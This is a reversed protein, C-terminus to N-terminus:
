FLSQSKQSTTISMLKGYIASFWRNFYPNHSEKLREYYEKHDIASFWRNFYPNHSPPPQQQIYYIIIASFWRNFYPNHSERLRDIHTSISQIASFWRNFYPNHRKNDVRWFDALATNCFVM